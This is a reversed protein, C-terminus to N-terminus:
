EKVPDNMIARYKERRVNMVNVVYERNIAFFSKGYGAVATTSRFSHLEVNGFWVDPNCGQVAACMRRDKLLGGLGGNYASFMFALKDKATLGFRIQLFLNRDYAVLAKLQMDPNFRDEWQWGALSQDWKKAEVFNNFQPTITLQGLGFGYERSTKLETKPNWCKPHTLSYCTEQEIQGALMSPEPMTPWLAAIAALLMPAYVAALAPIM